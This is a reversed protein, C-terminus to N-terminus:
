LIEGKLISAVFENFLYLKEMLELLMDSNCVQKDGYSMIYEAYETSYVLEVVNMEQLSMIKEPQQNLSILIVM